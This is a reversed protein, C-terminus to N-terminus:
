RGYTRIRDGRSSAIERKDRRAGPENSTRYYLEVPLGASRRKNRCIFQLRSYESESMAVPPTAWIVTEVGNGPPRCM